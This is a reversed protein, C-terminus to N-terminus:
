NAIKQIFIIDDDSLKKNLDFEKTVHRYQFVDIIDKKSITPAKM